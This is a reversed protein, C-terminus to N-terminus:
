KNTIRELLSNYLEKYIHLESELAATSKNAANLHGGANEGRPADLALANLIGADILKMEDDTCKGNYGSIREKSITNIQECIATSTRGTSEIIVHSPMNTKPKTTLYVVSIVPSSINLTDNSVVVAPRSAHIESGIEEAPAKGVYVIDGRIYATIQRSM